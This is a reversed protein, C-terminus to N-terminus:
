SRRRGPSAHASAPNHRALRRRRVASASINRSPSHGSGALCAPQTLRAWDADRRAYEGGIEATIDLRMIRLLAAAAQPYITPDAAYAMVSPRAFSLSRIPGIEEVAIPPM